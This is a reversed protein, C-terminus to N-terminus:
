ACPPSTGPSAVAAIPQPCAIKGNIPRESSSNGSPRRGDRRQRGTAAMDPRAITPKTTPATSRGPGNSAGKSGTDLGRPTGPMRSTISSSLLM